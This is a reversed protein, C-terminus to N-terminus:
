PSLCHVLLALSPYSFACEFQPLALTRKIAPGQTLPQLRFPFDVLLIGILRYLEVGDSKRARRIGM